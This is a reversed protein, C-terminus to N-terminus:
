YQWNWFLYTVDRFYDKDKKLMRQNTGRDYLSGKEKKYSGVKVFDFVKMWDEIDVDRGSYLCTKLGFAAALIAYDCLERCSEDSCDGEGMFCVCSAQNRYLGIIDDIYERLPMGSSTSQLEPYHCDECGNPCGSIYICISSEGPVEQHSMGFETYRLM